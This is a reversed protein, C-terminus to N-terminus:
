IEEENRRGMTEQIRGGGVSGVDGNDVPSIREAVM